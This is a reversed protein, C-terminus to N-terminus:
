SAKRKQGVREVFDTGNWFAVIEPVLGHPVLKAYREVQSISAWGGDDRLRMPDRHVAYHWSAWTHRAIHPTVRREIGASACAADWAKRIQGGYSQTKSDDTSRYARGRGHCFVREEHKPLAELEAVARPPLDVIRDTGNKTDRLVARSHRLDVDAWDLDVMESVRAGTCYLFVLVPKLHGGANEVQALVEAPTLWETRKRGPPAREFRPTDCWGRRAAHNLVAKIPAVVNRLKTAPSAGARCLARAAKDVVTQDIQDCTVRLGLHTAIRRVFYATGGSRPAHQLYDLAAVTFAVKPRSGHLASRYLEAERTARAEEALEPRDTGTTEFVRVGRVTGRLYLTSTGKRSVVKLGRPM